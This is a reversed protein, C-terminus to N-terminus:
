RFKIKTNNDMAPGVSLPLHNKVVSVKDIAVAQNLDDIVCFWCFNVVETGLGMHLYSFSFILYIENLEQAFVLSKVYIAITQCLKASDCNSLIKGTRLRAEEGGPFQFPWLISSLTYLIQEIRSVWQNECLHLKFKASM